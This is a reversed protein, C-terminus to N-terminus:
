PLFSPLFSSPPYDANLPSKPTPFHLLLGGTSRRPTGAIHASNTSPVGADPERPISRFSSTRSRGEGERFSRCLEIFLVRGGRRQDRRSSPPNARQRHEMDTLFYSLLPFSSPHSKTKKKKSRIARRNSKDTQTFAKWGTQEEKDEQRIKKVAVTKEREPSHLPKQVPSWTTGAVPNFRSKIFTTIQDIENRTSLITAVRTM